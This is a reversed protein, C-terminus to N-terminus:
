KCLLGGCQPHLEAPTLARGSAGGPVADFHHADATGYTWRLGHRAMLAVVQHGSSRWAVRPHSRAVWWSNPTWGHSARFPNEWPNVDLSRGYSHPSRVGPRGVVDRCNFASTNGAVMSAYDDAGRLRTSWGFRDVRYMSRLPLERRYMDALAASMRAVADANAVLEGRYRYGDYGWYNIRLLRLGSRGVPCGRHWSRGRMSRWVDDPITSVVANPGSGVARQQRPLSVRPKPAAGPLTVPTGPPVNDIRRVTSVARTAWDVAPAKAKWATDVRPRVDFRAVGQAGTRVWRVARWSGSADRRLVQVRGAVPRGAARWRVEVRVQKEDVVRAPARVVLRSPLKRLGVTLTASAPGYAEDGAWTARVVNDAARRRLRVPVVAHGTDDTVATTLPRWSGGVRRELAVTAALVPATGTGLSVTVDSVEGAAAAPAELTLVTPVPDAARAAPATVVVGALAGTLGITVALLSSFIRSGLPM